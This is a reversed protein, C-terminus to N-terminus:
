KGAQKLKKRLEDAYCKKFKRHGSEIHAQLARVVTKADGTKLADLIIQHEDVVDAPRNPMAALMEFPYKAWVIRVFHLTQPQDAIEYLRFHLRFNSRRHALMDNAKLAAKMEDNIRALSKIHEATIRKAAIRALRLELELRLEYLEEVQELVLPAVVAGRHSAGHVYGEAELLKLAERVPTISLNFMKAIEAQRLKQGRQFFGALIGERLFETVQNEKTKFAGGRTLEGDMGFEFSQLGETPNM